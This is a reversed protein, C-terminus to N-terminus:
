FLLFFIGLYICFLYIFLYFLVFCLYFFAFVFGFCFILRLLFFLVWVFLCVLVPAEDGTHYQSSSRTWLTERANFYQNIPFPLYLFFDHKVLCFFCVFLCVFLCVCFCVFVFVFFCFCFFCFLVVFCVCVYVGGGVGGGVCVCVWGIEDYSHLHITAQLRFIVTCVFKSLCFWDPDMDNFQTSYSQGIPFTLFPGSWCLCTSIFCMILISLNHRPRRTVHMLVLWVKLVVVQFELDPWNPTYCILVNSCVHWYSARPLNQYM